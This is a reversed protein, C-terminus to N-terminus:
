GKEDTDEIPADIIGTVSTPEEEMEELFVEDGEAAEDGDEGAVAALEEEPADPKVEDADFEKPPVPRTPKKQPTPAQPQPAKRALEYVASCIPCTIPDRNLDYFRSGCEDNQCTRKTGRLARLEEQSAAKTAM